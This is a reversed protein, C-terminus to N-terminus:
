NRNNCQSISTNAKSGQLLQSQQPTLHAALDVYSNVSRGGCVQVLDHCLDPLVVLTQDGFVALFELCPVLVLYSTAVTAVYTILYNYSHLLLRNVIKFLM